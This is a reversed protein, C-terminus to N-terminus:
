INIATMEHSVAELKDAIMEQEEKTTGDLLAQVVDDILLEWDKIQKKIAKHDVKLNYKSM